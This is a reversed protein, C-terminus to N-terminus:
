INGPRIAPFSLGTTLYSRPIPGLCAKCHARRLNHFSISVCSTDEANFKAAFIIVKTGDLLKNQRILNMLLSDLVIRIWWWGDTIELKWVEKLISESNEHWSQSNTMKGTSTPAIPIRPQKSTTSTVSTSSSQTTSGNWVMSKQISITVCLPWSWDCIEQFRQLASLHSSKKLSHQSSLIANNLNASISSLLSSTRPIHRHFCHYRHVLCMMINPLTLLQGLYLHPQTREYSALTWVIWQLQKAKWQSNDGGDIDDTYYALWSPPLQNSFLALVSHKCMKSVNCLEPNVQGLLELINGSNFRQLLVFRRKLEPNLQWSDSESSKAPIHGNFSSSNILMELQLEKSHPSSLLFHRSSDFRLESRSVRELQEVITPDKWPPVVANAPRQQGQELKDIKAFQADLSRAPEMRDGFDM